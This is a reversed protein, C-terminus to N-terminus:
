FYISFAAYKTNSTLTVNLEEFYLRLNLKKLFYLYPRIYCATPASWFLFHM